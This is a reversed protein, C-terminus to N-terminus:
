PTDVATSAPKNSRTQETRRVYEEMNEIMRRLARTFVSIDRDSLGDRIFANGQELVPLLRNSLRRAKVSLYLRQRRKDQEDPRRRILGDREMRKVIEAMSPQEIRARRCLEAQTQGDKELLWLVVPVYAPNPCSLGLQQRMTKHTLRAAQNILHGLSNERDFLRQTM